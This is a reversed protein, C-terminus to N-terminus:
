SPTSDAPPATTPAASAQEKAAAAPDMALEVHGRPLIKGPAAKLPTSSILLDSESKAMAMVRQVEQADLGYWEFLWELPVGAGRFKMFADTKQALSRYQPDSWVIRGSMTQKAKALGTDGGQALAILQNLQRLPRTFYQQRQVVKAVLGTEAVMLSEAAINSMKALYHQPTRTQSAIHDVATEIVLTFVELAAAPWSQAKANDGTLWLVRDQMLTKLDIPKEGIIQGNQDLVPVKPMEAGTMIRQPLSAFDLSNFLYAWVLNVADQLAAVGTIDSRPKDDLLSQNAFEVMPVMGLPNRIPWTDDKSGMRASWVPTSEDDFNVQRRPDHDDVVPWDWKWVEDATYLTLYGKHDDLWGKAAATTQKTEPDVAVACYSPHEFTVRPTSEDDPNGWVLAYSRGAALAVTFAESTGRMGDNVDFVRQLDADASRSDNDLRIGQYNLREAAADIVSGSWNDSFGDFRQKFYDNFQASAFRLTHEGRYYRMLGEVGLPGTISTTGGAYRRRNIEDWMKQGLAMAAGSEMGM